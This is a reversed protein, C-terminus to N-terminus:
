KLVKFKSPGFRKSLIRVPINRFNFGHKKKHKMLSSTDYIGLDDLGELVHKKTKRRNFKNKYMDNLRREKKKKKQKPILDKLFDPDDQLLLQMNQYNKTLVVNENSANAFKDMHPENIEVQSILKREKEEQM